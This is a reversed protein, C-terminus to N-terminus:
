EVKTGYSVGSGDEQKDPLSYSGIGQAQAFLAAQTRDNLNLKQFIRSVHKKVTFESIVLKRAMAGNSLGEGLASLVEREKPTLKEIPDDPDKRLLNGLLSQDFYSRGKGIMKIALLLEEPPAEKLVYGSAGSEQAMRIDNELASSTLMMFACPLHRLRKVLDYGSEGGLKIDVVAVDPKTKEILSVAERMSEAEGILEMGEEKDLIARLGNRVLPHDDVIVIRM